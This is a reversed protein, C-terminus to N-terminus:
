GRGLPVQCTTLYNLIKSNLWATAGADMGLNIRLNCLETHAFHDLM